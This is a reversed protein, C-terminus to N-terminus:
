LSFSFSNNNEGELTFILRKKKSEDILEPLFRVEQLKWKPDPTTKQTRTLRVKAASLHRADGFARRRADMRTCPGGDLPHIRTHWGIIEGRTKDWCLDKHGCYRNQQWARLVWCHLFVFLHTNTVSPIHFAGSRFVGQDTADPDNQNKNRLIKKEQRNYNSDKLDSTKWKIRLKCVSPLKFHSISLSQQRTKDRCSITDSSSQRSSQHMATGRLRSSSGM